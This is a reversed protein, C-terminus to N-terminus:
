AASDPENPVPAIEPAGAPESIRNTECQLKKYRRDELLKLSREYLREFRTEYRNMLHLLTSNDALEQLVLYARTAPDQTAIEPSNIEQDRLKKNFCAVEIGQVRMQRWHAAAMSKVLVTESHTVPDHEAIMAALMEQFQEDDEGHIVSTGFDACLGHKQANRASAAKGEPTIPGRSKSGNARAADIQKQTSM